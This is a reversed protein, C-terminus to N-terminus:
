AAWLWWREGAERLLFYLAELLLVGLVLSLAFGKGQDILWAALSQNSLGYRHERRFSTLYELPLMAVSWLTVLVAGFLAVQLWENGGHERVWDRLAVSAGSFLFLCLAVTVIALNLLRLWLSGREYARAREADSEGRRKTAPGATTTM